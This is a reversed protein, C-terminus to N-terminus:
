PRVRDPMRSTLGPPTYNADFTCGVGANFATAFGPCAAAIAQPTPRNGTAVWQALTSLLTVFVADSVYSHSEAGQVFTQVLRDGAGSQQMLTRFHADLEVFATPDDVWKVTLVPM